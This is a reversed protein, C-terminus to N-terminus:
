VRECVMEVRCWGRSLYGFKPGNWAAAKYDKFFGSSTMKMEWNAKDVAHMAPQVFDILLHIRTHTSDDTTPINM